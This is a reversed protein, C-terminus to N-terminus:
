EIKESYKTEGLYSSLFLFSNKPNKLKKNLVETEYIRDTNKLFIGTNTKIKSQLNEVMHFKNQHPLTICVKFFESGLDIGIMQSNLSPFINICIFISLLFSFLSKFFYFSM